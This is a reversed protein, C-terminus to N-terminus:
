RATLPCSSRLHGSHWSQFHQDDELLNIPSGPGVATVQQNPVNCHQKYCLFNDKNKTGDTIIEIVKLTPNLRPEAKALARPIVAKITYKMFINEPQENVNLCTLVVDEPILM